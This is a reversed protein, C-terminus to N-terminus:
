QSIERDFKKQMENERLKMRNKAAFKKQADYFRNDYVEEESSIAEVIRNAEAVDEETIEFGKKQLQIIRMYDKEFVKKYFIFSKVAADRLSSDTKYPPMGKIEDIMTATQGVFRNLMNEASDVDIEAAKSFDLVKQMLIAQRNVIYDNYQTASKYIIGNPGKVPNNCATLFLVWFIALSWIRM